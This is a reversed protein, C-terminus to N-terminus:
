GSNRAIFYLAIYAVTGGLISMVACSALFAL